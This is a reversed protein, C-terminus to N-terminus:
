SLVALSPVEQLNQGAPAWHRFPRASALTRCMFSPSSWIIGAPAWLRERESNVVTILFTQLVMFLLGRATFSDPDLLSPSIRGIVGFSRKSPLVELWSEERTSLSSSSLSVLLILNMSSTSLSHHFSQNEWHQCSRKGLCLHFFGSSFRRVPSM